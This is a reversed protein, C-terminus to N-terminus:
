YKIIKIMEDCEQLVAKAADIRSRTRIMLSCEANWGRDIDLDFFQEYDKLDNLVSISSEEISLFTKGAQHHEETAEDKQNSKQVADAFLVNGICGASEEGDHQNNDVDMSDQAPTCSPSPSPSPLGGAIKQLLPTTDAEMQILNKSSSQLHRFIKKMARRRRREKSFLFQISLLFSAHLLRGNVGGGSHSSTTRACNCLLCGVEAALQNFRQKSITSAQQQHQQQQQQQQQQQLPPSQDLEKVVISSHELILTFLLIGIENGNWHENSIFRQIAEEMHETRCESISLLVEQLSPSLITECSQICTILGRPIMNLDFCTLLDFNTMEQGNLILKVFSSVSADTQIISNNNNTSNTTNNISNNKSINNNNDINSNKNDNINNKSDTVNDFPALVHFMNRQQSELFELALTVNRLISYSLPIPLISGAAAVRVPSNVSSGIGISITSSSDVPTFLSPSSCADGTTEKIGAPTKQLWSKNSRQKNKPTLFKHRWSTNERPSKIIM